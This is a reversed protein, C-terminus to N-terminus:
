RPRLVHRPAATLADANRQIHQVQTRNPIPRTPSYFSISLNMACQHPSRARPHYLISPETQNQVTNPIDSASYHCFHSDAFRRFKICGTPTLLRSLNMRLNRLRFSTCDLYPSATVRDGYVSVATGTRDHRAIIMVGREMM